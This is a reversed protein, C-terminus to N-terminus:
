EESTEETEEKGFLGESMAVSVGFAAGAGIMPWISGTVLFTVFLVASILSLVGYIVWSWPSEELFNKM